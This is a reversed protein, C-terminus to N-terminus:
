LITTEEVSAGTLHSMFFSTRNKTAGTAKIIPTVMNPAVPQPPRDAMSSRPSASGSPAPIPSPPGFSAEMESSVLTDSSELREVSVAASVPGTSSTAGGRSATMSMVTRSPEVQEGRVVQPLTQTSMLVFGLFQPRHPLTHGCFRGSQKFPAHTTVHACSEPGGRVLQLM